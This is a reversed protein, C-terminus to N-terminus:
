HSHSVETKFNTLTDLSIPAICYSRIPNSCCDIRHEECQADSGV